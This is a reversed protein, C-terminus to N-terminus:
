CNLRGKRTNWINIVGERWGHLFSDNDARKFRQAEGPCRKEIFTFFVNRMFAFYNTDHRANPRRLVDKIEQPSASNIWKKAVAKGSHFANKKLESESGNKEKEENEIMMKEIRYKDILKIM